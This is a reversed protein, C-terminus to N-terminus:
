GHRGPHASDARRRARWPLQVIQAGDVFGTVGDSSQEAPAVEVGRLDGLPRGRGSLAPDGVAAVQVVTVGEGYEAGCALTGGVPPQALCAQPCRLSSDSRFDAGASVPVEEEADVGVDAEPVPLDIVADDVVEGVLGDVLLPGGDRSNGVREHLTLV